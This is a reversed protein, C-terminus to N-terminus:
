VDPNIRFQQEERPIVTEEFSNQPSHMHHLHLPDLSFPLGLAESSDQVCAPESVLRKCM